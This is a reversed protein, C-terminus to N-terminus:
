WKVLTYMDLFGCQGDYYFSVKYGLEELQKVAAKWEPTKHYGGYTWFETHLAVQRKKNTAMERIKELAMDVCEDVTPGALEKAETATLRKSM